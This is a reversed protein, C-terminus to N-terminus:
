PILIAQCHLGLESKVKYGFAQDKPNRLNRGVKRARPSSNARRVRRLERLKVATSEAGVTGM